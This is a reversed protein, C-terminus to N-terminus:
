KKKFKSKIFFLILAPASGEPILSGGGSKCTNYVIDLKDVLGGTKTVIGGWMWFIVVLCIMVIIYFILHTIMDKYKDWWGKNILRQELINNTAIRNARMDQQIFKVGAKKQEANVSTMAFNIWEGDEREEHLYENQATQITAPSIFKRIGKVLWLCDGAKGIPFKKAKYTYIRTLVNGIEKYLPIRIFYRKSNIKWWVLWGICALIVIIIVFLILANGIAGIGM